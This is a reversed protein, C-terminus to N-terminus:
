SGEFSEEWFVLENYQTSKVLFQVVLSGLRPTTFAITKVPNQVNVLFRVKQFTIRKLIFHNDNRTGM